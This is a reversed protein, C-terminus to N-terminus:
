GSERRAGGRDPNPLQRQALPRSRCTCVAGLLVAPTATDATQRLDPVSAAFESPQDADCASIILGSRNSFPLSRLHYRRPDHGRARIATRARMIGGRYRRGGGRRCRSRHGYVLKTWAPSESRSAAVEPGGAMRQEGSGPYGTARKGGRIDAGYLVVM